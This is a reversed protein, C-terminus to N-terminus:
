VGFEEDEESKHSKLISLVSSNYKAILESM